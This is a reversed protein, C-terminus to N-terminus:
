GNANLDPFIHVGDAGLPINVAEFVADTKLADYLHAFLIGGRASEWKLDDGFSTEDACLLVQVQM